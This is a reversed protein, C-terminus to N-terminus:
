GIALFKCIWENFQLSQYSSPLPYKKAPVVVKFCKSKCYLGVGFNDCSQVTSNHPNSASSLAYSHSAFRTNLFSQEVVKSMNSIKAEVAVLKTLSFMNSESCLRWNNRSFKLLKANFLKELSHFAQEESLGLKTNINNVTSIRAYCLFSLMKLERVDLKSREDSWNELISPRFSAFVIDPFCSDVLPEVFVALKNVKNDKRFKSCYYDIFLKVLAYEKGINVNRTLLGIAPNSDKFVIVQDM